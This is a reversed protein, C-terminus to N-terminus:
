NEISEPLLLEFQQKDANPSTVEVKGGLSEALLSLFLMGSDFDESRDPRPSTVTIKVGSDDRDFTIAIVDDKQSGDLALQICMFVAQQLRFPDSTITLPEDPFRTELDARKLFAFRRALSVLEELLTALDFSVISKDTTHAFRNLMKIIEQGRKIQDSIRQSLERLRASDVKARRKRKPLLDDTLGNLESIIAMSNSLEHSLSAAIKGFFALSRERMLRYEENSM